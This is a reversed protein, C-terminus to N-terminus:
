DRSPSTAQDVVLPANSAVILRRTTIYKIVLARTMKTQTKVTGVGKRGEKRGLEGQRGKSAATETNRM